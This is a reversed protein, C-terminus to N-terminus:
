SQEWSKGDFLYGYEQDSNYFSEVWAEFNAFTHAEQGTEGRDRSYALTVNEPHNDFDVKEGITEALISINGLDLLQEVKAPDTWYDKLTQGVGEPYGDFHCYIARVTSDPNLVAISSRTSM